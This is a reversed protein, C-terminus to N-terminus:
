LKATGPMALLGLKGAADLMEAKREGELPLNPLRRVVISCLRSVFRHIIMARRRIMAVRVSAGLRATPMCLHSHVAALDRTM